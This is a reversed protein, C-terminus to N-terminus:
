QQKNNRTINISANTEESCLSASLPAYSIGSNAEATLIINGYSDKIWGQAEIHQIPEKTILKPEELNNITQDLPFNDQWTPKIPPVDTPSLPLRDVGTIILETEEFGSHEHCNSTIEPSAHIAEPAAKIAHSDLPFGNIKVQGNLGFQSSSQVLSNRSFFFGDRVNIQINGGSGEFANATIVSNGLSFLIDTDLTINGGDGNSGQQGATASIIGNNLLVFKSNIDIDGGQGVATTATIGGNNTINVTNANIYVTGANGSGDNKVNIFAGDAVNLNNTNIIIEGSDGKPIPPLRYLKQFNENFIIVSANILSPYTYGLVTGILNISDSANIILSEAKGSARTSNNIVGGDRLTLKKTNVTLKGSNGTSYTASILSSPTFVNPVVGVLEISNNASVTVNGGYGDGLTLSGIIGGDKATLYETKLVLNGAKGSGSARTLVTSSLPQSFQLGEQLYGLVQTSESTNVILDGGRGTGFSSTLIEGGTQVILNKTSVTLNGGDGSSFAGTVINSPLQVVSSSGGAINISESTNVTLNGGKGFGYTKAVIAAGDQLILNRTSIEIRGGDGALTENIFSTPIVGNPSTGRLRLYESANVIIDGSLKNGQNQILFISGGALEVEAGQAQIFGGNFGSTDAISQQLLQISKFSLAKEYNLIWGNTAPYLDVIGENVSGLEIRGGSAELKGGDLVVNGGVLALTKGPNVRLSNSSLNRIIASFPNNLTLNHGTGQVQITGPNGDFGLGLPASITLLPKTQPTKANFENGDAFNIRSATTALFSGNINLSANPGFLIGNPNILFLNTNGNAKILGDINSISSGTVRSIINQVNLANNFYATSNTSISFQEFSHFLNGGAQMGGTINSTDGQLNVISNVPLTNDPVIQAIATSSLLVYSMFALHQSFVFFINLFDKM